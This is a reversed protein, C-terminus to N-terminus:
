PMVRHAMLANLPKFGSLNGALRLCQAQLYGGKVRLALWRARRQAPV